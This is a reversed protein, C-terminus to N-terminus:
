AAGVERVLLYRSTTVSSDTHNTAGAYIGRDESVHVVSWGETALDNLVSLIGEMPLGFDWYRFAPLPKYEDGAYFGAAWVVIEKVPTYGGNEQVVANLNPDPFQGQAASAIRGSHDGGRTQAVHITEGSPAVVEEQVLDPNMFGSRPTRKERVTCGDIFERRKRRAEEIAAPLLNEKVWKEWASKALEYEDFVESSGDPFKVTGGKVRRLALYGYERQAGSSM